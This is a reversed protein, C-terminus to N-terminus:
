KGYVVNIIPTADASTAKKDRNTDAKIFGEMQNEFAYKDYEVVTYASIIDNWTVSGNLNVDEKVTYDIKSAENEYDLTIEAKYMDLTTGYKFADVVLAYVYKHTEGRNLYTYGANSVDLMKVGDFDFTVGSANTYVLVLKTGSVYDSEEGFVVEVLYNPALVTIEVKKTVQQYGISASGEVTYEIVYNGVETIEPATETAAAGNVSYTIKANPTSTVEFKYADGTYNIKKNDTTLVEGDFKVEVVYQNYKINVTFRGEVTTYGDKKIVYSVDYYGVDSFEPLDALTESTGSHKFTYTIQADTLEVNTGNVEEYAKVCMDFIKNPDHQVEIATATVVESGDYVVATMTRNEVSIRTDEDTITGSVDTEEWANEVTRIDVNSVTFPSDNVAINKSKFVYTAVALETNMTGREAILEPKTATGYNTGQNVTFSVLEFYNENFALDWRVGKPEVGDVYVEVTFETSTKVTYDEGYVPVLYLTRAKDVVWYKSTTRYNAVTNEALYVTPDEKYMGGYVKIQSDGVAAGYCNYKGNFTGDYANVVSKAGGASQAILVSYNGDKGTGTKDAIWEGGYVNITGGSTMAIFAGQASEGYGGYVNATAGNSVGVLSGVYSTTGRQYFKTDDYVNLVTDTGVCEIGVYSDKGDVVTGANVNLESGGRVKIVAGNSNNGILTVDDLNITMKYANTSATALACYASSAAEITGNKITIKNAKTGNNKFNLLYDNVSDDNTLTYGNLDITFDADGIYYIGDYYAGSNHTRTSEDITVDKLLKFVSGDKIAAVAEKLNFYVVGDVSAKGDAVAPSTDGKSTLFTINEVTNSGTFITTENGGYLYGLAYDSYADGYAGIYTKIHVNKATLNSGRIPQTGDNDEAMGVIAGLGGAASTVLIGDTGTGIVSSNTINSSGEGAYGVMGGACWFTSYITGTAEVSSNSINVYGHGVIGGIYGRGSVDIEGTVHVNDITTTAMSNGIVIGVNNSNSTSKVTANHITLNKVSASVGDGYDGTWAFFGISDNAAEVYLNSITKNNGDFHGQFSNHDGVSNRGIPEWNIGALDIDAMLKVYKGKFQNSGDQKYTNVKDRFGVLEALNNILYPDEATGTGSLMRDFTVNGNADIVANLQAGSLNEVATAKVTSAKDMFVAATADERIQVKGATVDTRTLTLNADKYLRLESAVRVVSNNFDADIPAYKDLEEDSNKKYDLWLMNAEVVADKAYFTGSYAGITNACSFEVTSDDNDGYIYIGAESDTNRRVVTMGGTTVKGGNKITTTADDAHYYTKEVNLTGEIVNDSDAGSSFVYPVNLTINKGLTAGNFDTYDAAFTNNITVGGAVNTMLAVNEIAEISETVDRVVNVKGVTATEAALSAVDDAAVKSEAIADALKGYGKVGDATEAIAVIPNIDDAGSYKIINEAVKVGDIVMVGKTPNMDYKPYGTEWAVDWYSDNSGAFPIHWTVYVNGDIIGDINNLSATAIKKDGEYLEVALSEYANGGGEGWFDTTSTYVYTLSGSVKNYITEDSVVTGNLNVTVNTGETSPLNGNEKYETKGVVLWKGDTNTANMENSGTFTLNSSVSAKRVVVPVFANIVNDTFIANNNLEADLRVGHELVDLDCNKIEVGQVTGCAFGGLSNTVEVNDVKLNWGATNQLFSHLGTGTCNEIVTDHSSKLRVAVVAYGEATIDGTGTFSCDKVVVQPYRNKNTSSIFDHAQKDTVFDINKFTVTGDNTDHSGLDLWTVTGTFTTNDQGDFVLSVGANRTFNVNEAITGFLDIEYTGATAVAADVAAQVTAYKNEGIKAAYPVENVTANVTATDEVVYVSTLDTLHIGGDRLTGSISITANDEVSLKQGNEIRIGAKTIGELNLVSDGSITYNGRFLVRGDLNTVNIKSNDIVIDNGTSANVCVIDLDLAADNEVLIESGNLLNLDSNNGDLGILYTGTVGTATIKVNDFTLTQNGFMWFVATSPKVSPDVVINGNMFKTTGFYLDDEMLTLTNGNLDIVSAKTIARQSALAPTADSYVDITDGDVAAAFAEDLSDYEVAGIKAAMKVVSGNDLLKVGEALYNKVSNSQEADFNGGKIVPTGYYADVRGGFTGALVEVTGNIVSGGTTAQDDAKNEINGGNVVVKGDSYTYIAHSTFGPIGSMDIDTNVLTVVAGNNYSAVAGHYSTIYSDVIEMTGTNNVTYSPWAGDANPAGNLTVNEVTATGKNLLASGGNNATSKVTGNKLVLTGNNEIVAGVSKHMTGTVTKDNLDITLTTGEAVVFTEALEVDETLTIVGNVAEPLASSEASVVATDEVAVESEVVEGAGMAVGAMSPAAFVSTATMMVALVVAVFANFRKKFNM